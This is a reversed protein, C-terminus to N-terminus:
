LSSAPHPPVQRPPCSTNTRARLRTSCRGYQQAFTRAVLRRLFDGIVLGRVGPCNRRHPWQPGPCGREQRAQPQGAIHPLGFRSPHRAGLRPTSIVTRNLQDSPIACSSWPPAIVPHWPSAFLEGSSFPHRAGCPCRVPARRSESFGAAEPPPVPAASCLLADWDGAFFLAFRARLVPKPM